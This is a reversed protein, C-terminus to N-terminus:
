RRGPRLRSQRPTLLYVGTAKGDPSRGTCLIQGVENADLVKELVIGDPLPNCLTNVDTVTGNEWIVVCSLNGTYCMGVIQDDDNIFCAQSSVGGPLDPLNTRNGSAWRCARQRAQGPLTPEHHYGVVRGLNNVDMASSYYPSGPDLDVAVGNQWLTAHYLGGNGDQTIQALGAVYGSDSIGNFYTRSENWYNGTPGWNTGDIFGYIECPLAGLANGDVGVRTGYPQGGPGPANSGYTFPYLNGAYRGVNNIRLTSWHWIGDLTFPNGNVWRCALYLDHAVYYYYSRWFGIGVVVGQDNIDTAYFTRGAHQDPLLTVVGNDWVAAPHDQTSGALQGHNNMGRPSFGKVEQVQYRAGSSVVVDHTQTVAPHKADKVSVTVSYTGETNPATWTVTAGSGSLTGAAASWSYTLADGDPDHAEISIQATNGPPVPDPTVTWGRIVPPENESEG